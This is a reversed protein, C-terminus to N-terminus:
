TSIVLRELLQLTKENKLVDETYYKLKEPDLKAAGSYNKLVKNTETKVEDETVEVNEKKSIERLVLLNEIRRKAEPLFSNLLDEETKRTKNLYDTFTAGLQQSVNQKLDELMHDTEEKILVEPIELKSNKAIKELILQRVRQSEEREKELTFGEKLSEKLGSLNEFHGLSKVFQDNVEPFEVKQVSKLKVIFNIEKGALDKQLHDKPFTLSFEKEQGSEM